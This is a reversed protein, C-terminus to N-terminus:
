ESYSRAGPAAPEASNMPSGVPTKPMTGSSSYRANVTCNRRSTTGNSEPPPTSPNALQVALAADRRLAAAHRFAAVLLRDRRVDGELGSERPWFADPQGRLRQAARLGAGPLCQSGPHHAEVRQAEADTHNLIVCDVRLCPLTIRWFRLSYSSPMRLRLMEKM